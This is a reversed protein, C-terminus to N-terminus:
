ARPLVFSFVNVGETSQAGIRGGHALVLQRAVYLGLGLGRAASTADAAHQRLRVLPDFISILDESAIAPGKNTVSVEVEAGHDVLAIRIVSHPTRYKVANVLLNTLVRGLRAPDWEGRLEGQETMEIRCDPHHARTEEVVRGCIEALSAPVRKLPLSRGLRAQMVDLMEEVLERMRTSARGLKAAIEATDGSGDSTQALVRALSAVTGLPNRLDHVLMGTFLDRAHTQDVSYRRISETLGLDLARNFRLLDKVAAEADPRPLRAWSQLILERLGCFEALVDDLSYGQRLREEAHQGGWIAFDAPNHVRADAERAPLDDIGEAIHLLLDRLRDGLQAANYEGSAVSPPNAQSVWDRILADANARMYETLTM